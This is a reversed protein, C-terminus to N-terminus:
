RRWEWEMTELYAKLDSANRFKKLILTQKLGCCIAKVEKPLKAYHRAGGLADYFIRIMEVVDSRISHTKPAAWYYFDLLKLEFGLGYRQVIINDTHLDGHYEGSRHICEMGSALAHLLHLAAFQGLRGGPQHKLLESLVEGEVFDSILFTVPTNRYRFTDQTHYQIVIPCKHLKHLKKAYFKIARERVNRHPFFMKATREIGTARERVRYVEGEWGAGLLDVIEYKGSLVRGPRLNFQDIRRQRKRKTAV